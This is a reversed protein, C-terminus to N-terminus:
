TVVGASTHIVQGTIQRSAPLCLFLVTAAVDDPESVRHFFNELTGAAVAEAMAKDDRMGRQLPTATVGPAVANVNVDYQGMQAAAIRTLANLAAKSCGYALKVGAARSGSSSSISVIRGGQGRDAMHKGVLRMLVRPARLNVDHVRDWEEEDHDILVGKAGTVSYANVLIDIAGLEALAQQVAPELADYSALDAQVVFAGGGIGEATEKAAAEDHDVVAVRAGAEALLRACARGIGRGAGTVFATKDALPSQM